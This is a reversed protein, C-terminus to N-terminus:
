HEAATPVPPQSDTTPPASELEMTRITVKRIVVPKAPRDGDPYESDDRVPLSLIKRAIGLGQTVKGFVTYEGDMFPCRSLTIYFKCAATDKGEGHSAGVTGEEHPIEPHIEPKMWYGISGYGMDGTGMPCGGEILELKGDPGNEHVTREFVLDDFYGAQALAVFNRVHNPALDPRLAIEIEGMETDLIAWYALPKGGPSVYRIQDWNNKVETYLKGVSKGALTTDPPRHWDEPPESTTAEAFSQHLLPDLVVSPGNEPRSADDAPPVAADQAPKQRGCGAFTLALVFAAVGIGADLWNRQRTKIAM